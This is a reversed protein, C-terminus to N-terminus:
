AAGEGLLLPIAKYKVSLSDPARSGSVVLFLELDRM